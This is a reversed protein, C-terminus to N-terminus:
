SSRQRGPRRVLDSAIQMVSSSPGAIYMIHSMNHPERCAQPVYLSLFKPDPHRTLVLNSQMESSFHLVMQREIIQTSCM